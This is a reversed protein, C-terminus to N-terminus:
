PSVIERGCGECETVPHRYKSLHGCKSCEIALDDCNPCIAVKGKTKTALDFGLSILAKKPNFLMATFGGAGMMRFGISAKTYFSGYRSCHPCTGRYSQHRETFSRFGKKLESWGDNPDSMVAGSDGRMRVAYKLM